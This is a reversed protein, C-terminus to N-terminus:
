LLTLAMPKLLPRIRLSIDLTLDQERLGNGEAGTDAGFSNHGPDICVRYAM